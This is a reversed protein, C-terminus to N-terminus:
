ARPDDLRVRLVLSPKINKNRLPISLRDDARIKKFFFYYLVCQKKKQLIQCSSTALFVPGQTKKSFFGNKFTNNKGL